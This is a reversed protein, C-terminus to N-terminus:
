AQASAEAGETESVMKKKIVRVSKKPCNGNRYEAVGGEPTRRIADGLATDRGIVLIGKYPADDSHLMILVKLFKGEYFIEAEGCIRDTHIKDLLTDKRTERRKIREVIPAIEMHAETKSASQKFARKKEQNLDRIQSELKKVEKERRKEILKLLKDKKESCIVTGIM